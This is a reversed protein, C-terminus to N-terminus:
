CSNESCRFRQKCWFHSFVQSKAKSKSISTKDAQAARELRERAQSSRSSEKEEASTKAAEEGAAAAASTKEVNIQEKLKEVLLQKKRLEEDSSSSSETEDLSVIKVSPELGVVMVDSSNSAANQENKEPENETGEVLIKEPDSEESNSSVGSEPCPAWPKGKAEDAEPINGDCADWHPLTCVGVGPKVGAHIAEEVPTHCQHCRRPKRPKTVKTNSDEEMNVSLGSTVPLSTILDSLSKSRAVLRVSLSHSGNQNEERCLGDVQESLDAM